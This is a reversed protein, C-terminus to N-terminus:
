VFSGMTVVLSALLVIRDYFVNRRPSEEKRTDEVCGVTKDDVVVVVDSVVAVVVCAAVVIDVDVAEVVVSLAIVVIEVLLPLQYALHYANGLATRFLILKM